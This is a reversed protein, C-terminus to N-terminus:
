DCFFSANYEPKLKCYGPIGDKAPENTFQFMGLDIPYLTQFQQLEDCMVKRIEWHAFESTRRFYIYRRELLNCSMAIQAKIATPLVQRADEAKWGASRLAQYNKEAEYMMTVFSPGYRYEDNNETAPVHYIPQHEDRHPPVVVTFDSGGVYRTSEESFVPPRHRVEEHTFGRCCNDYVVTHAIHNLREESTHLLYEDNIPIADFYYDDLNEFVVKPFIAPCFNGLDYRIGDFAKDVLLGRKHVKRWTEINASVLIIGPDPLSQGKRFTIYMYKSIPWFLAVIDKKSWTRGGIFYGRWGHELVSYHTRNHINGVFKHASEPTIPNKESQYCIRGAKEMVMQANVNTEPSPWTAIPTSKGANKLIKM